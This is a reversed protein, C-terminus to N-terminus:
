PAFGTPQCAWALTAVNGGGDTPFPQTEGNLSCALLFRAVTAAHPDSGPAVTVTLSTTSGRPTTTGDQTVNSGTFTWAGNGATASPIGLDVRYSGTPLTLYRGGDPALEELTTTNVAPGSPNGTDDLPTVAVPWGGFIPEPYDYRGNLQGSAPYPGGNPAPFGAPMFDYISRVKLLGTPQVVISQAGSPGGPNPTSSCAALLALGLAALPLPLTRM